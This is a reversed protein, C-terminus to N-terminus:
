RHPAVITTRGSSDDCGGAGHGDIATVQLPLEVLEAATRAPPIFALKAIQGRNQLLMLLDHCDGASFDAANSEHAAGPKYDDRISAQEAKAGVPPEAPSLEFEAGFLHPSDGQPDAWEATAYAHLAGAVGHTQQQRLM